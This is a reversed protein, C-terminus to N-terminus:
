TQMWLNASILSLGFRTLSPTQSHRQEWKPSFIKCSSKYIQSVNLQTHMEPEFKGSVLEINSAKRFPVTLATKNSIYTGTALFSKNLSVKYSTLAKSSASIWCPTKSRPSLTFNADVIFFDIESFLTWNLKKFTASGSSLESTLDTITEVESSVM